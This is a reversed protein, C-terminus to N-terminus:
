ILSFANSGLARREDIIETTITNSTFYLYVKCHYWTFRLACLALLTDNWFHHVDWHSPILEKTCIFTFNQLTFVLIKDSLACVRFCLQLQQKFYEAVNLVRCYVGTDTSFLSTKVNMMVSASSPSRRYRQSWEEPYIAWQSIGWKSPDVLSMHQEEQYKLGAIEEAIYLWHSQHSTPFLNVGCTKRSSFRSLRTSAITWARSFAICFFVQFFVVM